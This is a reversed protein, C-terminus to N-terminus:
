GHRDKRARRKSRYTDVWRTREHPEKQLFNMKFRWRELEPCIVFMVSRGALIGTVADTGLDKLSSCRGPMVLDLIVIDPKEVTFLKVATGPNWCTRVRFGQPTLFAEIM